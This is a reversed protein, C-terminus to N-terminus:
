YRFTHKSHRVQAHKDDDETIYGLIPVGLPESMVSFSHILEERGVLFFLVINNQPFLSCTGMLIEYINNFDNIARGEFPVFGDHEQLEDLSSYFVKNYFAYKDAEFVALITMNPQVTAGIEVLSLVSLITFIHRCM